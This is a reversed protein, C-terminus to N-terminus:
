GPEGVPGGTQNPSVRLPAVWRYMAAAGLGSTVGLAVASAGLVAVASIIGVAIPGVFMGTDHMLRWAGLFEARHGPPAADAGITM